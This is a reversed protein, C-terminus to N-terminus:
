YYAFFRGKGGNAQPDGIVLDVYGDGNIDKALIV